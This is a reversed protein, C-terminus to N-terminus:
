YSVGGYVVVGSSGTGWPGIAVIQGAANTRVNFHYVGSTFTKTYTSSGAFTNDSRVFTYPVNNPDSTPPDYAGALLQTGTGDLSYFGTLSGSVSDFAGLIQKFVSTM